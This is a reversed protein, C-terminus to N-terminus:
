RNVSIVSHSFNNMNKNSTNVKKKLSELHVHSGIYYVHEKRM